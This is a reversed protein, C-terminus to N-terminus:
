VCRGIAVEGAAQGDGDVLRRRRTRAIRAIRAHPAHTRAIRAHMRHYIAALPKSLDYPESPETEDPECLLSLM